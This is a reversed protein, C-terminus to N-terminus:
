ISEKLKKPEINKYLSKKNLGSILTEVLIMALIIPLGIAYVEAITLETM